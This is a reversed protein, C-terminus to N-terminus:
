IRQSKSFLPARRGCDIRPAEKRQPRCHQVSQRRRYGAAWKGGGSRVVDYSSRYRRMWVKERSTPRGLGASENNAQEEPSFCGHRRHHPNGHHCQRRQMHDTGAVASRPRKPATSLYPHIDRQVPERPLSLLQSWTHHTISKWRANGSARHTNINCYSRIKGSHLM